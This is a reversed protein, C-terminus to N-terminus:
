EARLAVAPRTRAAARAPIAAIANVLLLAVPITIAVALWPIPFHADVGLSRAVIGWTLRGAVLGVPIGFGLGVAAMTTAQSAVTTRIQAGEFGLTQFVALDRSRGRVATVLAHGIAALALVAIFGGVLRPIARVRAFNELNPPSGVSAIEFGNELLGTEAAAVEVGPMWRVLVYSFYENGADVVVADMASRTFLAFENYAGTDSDPVAPHVFEPFVGRGVVQVTMRRSGELGRATLTDGVDRDLRDLTSSGVLVEDPGAPSRGELVTGYGSGKTEDLWYSQIPADGLRVPLVGLAAVGETDPNEALATVDDVLSEPDRPGVVATDWTWGYAVEESVVWGMAASFALAAVVGAVGLVAGALASRVPVSTRGRGPELAMRVGAVVPPRAGLRVLRGVFAAIPAHDSAAQRQGAARWASLAARAILALAIVGCGLGLALWDIDFGTDPEVRRAFGTPMLPSALLALAGALAGGGSAVLVFPALLALCRSRRDLGLAWLAPQDASSRALRRAVAQGIAVFGALATVLAAVRLATAQVNTADDIEAVTEADTEIIVGEGDPVVREVGARFAAMDADGRVLRVDLIDDFHGVRDRYQAYFAPTLLIIPAGSAVDDAVRGTGAVVVTITPGAPEGGPDGNAILQQMQESTLSRLRIRDGPGVGFRRAAVTNVLVEHARDASPPRGDVLLAANVVSGFRGDTSAITLLDDSEAGEPMVFFFSGPAAAAVEPLAEIADFYAPSVEVSADGELTSARLRGLATDTRRAGAFLTLVVGGILGVVFALVLYSRWRRRLDARVLVAVASNV